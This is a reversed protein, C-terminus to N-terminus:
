EQIRPFLPIFSQQPYAASLFWTEYWVYPKIGM